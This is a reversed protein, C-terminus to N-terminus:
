LLSESHAAGKPEAAARTCVDVSGARTFSSCSQRVPAPYYGGLCVLRNLERLLIRKGPLVDRVRFRCNSARTM